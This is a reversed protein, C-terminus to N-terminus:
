NATQRALCCPIIPLGRPPLIKVKALGFYKSIDVDLNETPVTPHGIPYRCYKNTWPYLSTFDYYEITEGQDVKHHLKVANTRGGFFSDRPNLRDRVDLQSVFYNMEKSKKMNQHFQHEWICKYKYGLRKIEEERKKTVVYLEELSQDTTPHM